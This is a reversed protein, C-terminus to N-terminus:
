FQSGALCSNEVSEWKTSQFRSTGDLRVNGNCGAQFTHIMITRLVLSENEFYVRSQNILRESIRWWWWGSTPLVLPPKHQPICLLWGISLGSFSSANLRLLFPRISFDDSRRRSAYPLCCRFLDEEGVSNNRQSGRVDYTHWTNTM